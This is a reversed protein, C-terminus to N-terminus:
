SPPAKGAPYTLALEDDTPEVSSRFLSTSVRLFEVNRKSNQREWAERVETESVLVGAFVADEMSRILIRKTLIEALRRETKGARRQKEEASTAGGELYRQYGEPDFNGEEDQFEPVDEM